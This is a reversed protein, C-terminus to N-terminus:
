TMCVESIEKMNLSTMGETDRLGQYHELVDTLFRLNVAPALGYNHPHWWLHYIGGNRAAANMESKIRRLRLPEFIRFRKSVPRLFRSSPIAVPLTDERQCHQQGLGSLNIYADLLRLLRKLGTQGKNAAPRYMWVDPNRRYAAIGLERSIKLYTPNCQNRPFVLSQLVIDWQAAVNIAASLDARFAEASQGPELCYYHSFTHCGIEQGPYEMIKRILSPAFHFPDTSEDDGISALYPYPNLRADTYQPLIAPLATMLDKKHQFFLFGVTAWTCHITYHRFLDLLAPIIQREGSLAARAQTLPIVDRLGWYLELDLSITFIGNKKPM